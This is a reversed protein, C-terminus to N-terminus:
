YDSAPVNAGQTSPEDSASTTVAEPEPAVFGGEVEDFGCSEATANGGTFEVLEKIQVARLDLKVGVGQSAVYWPHIECSMRLVSGGGVNVTTPKGASDFVAPKQSWPTGDSKRVGGAKLTAKIKVKGTENGEDDLEPQIPHGVTALKVKPVPKKTELAIAKVHVDRHEKLKAELKEVFPDEADLLIACSYEGEEKFKTDPKNVRPYVATGFPTTIKEFKVKNNTSM